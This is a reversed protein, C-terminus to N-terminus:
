SEGGFFDDDLIKDLPIPRAKGIVFLQNKVITSVTKDFWKIHNKELYSKLSPSDELIDKIERRFNSIEVSWKVILHLKTLAIAKLFM